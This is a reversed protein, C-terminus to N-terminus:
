GGGAPHRGGRPAGGPPQRRDALRDPHPERQHGAEGVVGGIDVPDRPEDRGHLVDFPDLDLREMLEAREFPFGPPQNVVAANRLPTRRLQYIPSRATGPPPSDRGSVSRGRDRRSSPVPSIAMNSKARSIM